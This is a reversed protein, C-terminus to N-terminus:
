NNYIGLGLQQILKQLIPFRELLRMFLGSFGHSFQKSRPSELWPDFLVTSDLALIEDGNGPGEGSPGSASGWWNLTANVSSSIAFLGCQGSNAINNYHMENDYSDEIFFADMGTNYADCNKILNNDSNELLCGHWWNNSLDCRLVQNFSSYHLYVGCFNNKFNCKIIKVDSCMFLHVGWSCARLECNEVVADTNVLLVGSAVFKITVDHVNVNTCNVFGLFGVNDGSIDLNDKEIFYYIPKGNITNSEDVDQYFHSIKNGFVQFNIYDGTITNNRMINFPAKELLIGGKVECDLISNNSSGGCLDIGYITNAGSIKCDVITNNLCEYLEIGYISNSFTSSVISSDTTEVLCIGHRNGIDITLGEVSVNTCKILALFGIDESGDFVLDSQNYIYYVPKGDVMNSTDIDHYFHETKTGEYVDLNYDNSYMNNNRLIFNKSKHFGIGIHNNYVECDRILSNSCERILIGFQGESATMNSLTSSHLELLYISYYENSSSANCNNVSIFMSDYLLLGYRGYLISDQISINSSSRVYTGIDNEDTIVASIAGFTVNYFEIALTGTLRCNRVIFYMTTHYIRIGYGSGNIEWGEIIYPDEETGSGGTVGNEETFKDNRRINIPDHPTYDGNTSRDTSIINQYFSDEETYGFLERPYQRTKEKSLFRSDFELAPDYILHENNDIDKPNFQSTQYTANNETQNFSEKTSFSTTTPIVSVGIFLVIIGIVLGKKFLSIRM